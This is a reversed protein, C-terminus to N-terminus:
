SAELIIRQRETQFPRHSGLAKGGNGCTMELQRLLIQSDVMDFSNSPKLILDEVM